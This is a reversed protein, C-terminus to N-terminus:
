KSITNLTNKVIESMLKSDVTSGYKKKIEAMVKGMDKPGTAGVLTISETVINGYLDTSVKSPLLATLVNVMEQENNKAGGSAIMDNLAKIEKGVVVLVEEDTLAKGNRGEIAQVASLVYQYASLATKNRSKRSETILTNIKNKM